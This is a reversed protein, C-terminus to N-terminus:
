KAIEDLYNKVVYLDEITNWKHEKDNWILPYKKPATELIDFLEGHSKAYEVSRAFFLPHFDPYRNRLSEVVKDDIM